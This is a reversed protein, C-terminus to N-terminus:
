CYHLVFCFLDDIFLFISRLLLKMARWLVAHKMGCARQGRHAKSQPKEVV